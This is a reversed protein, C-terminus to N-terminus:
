RAFYRYFIAEDTTSEIAVQSIGYDVWWETAFWLLVEAVTGSPFPIISTFGTESSLVLSHIVLTIRRFMLRLYYAEEPEVQLWVGDRLLTFIAKLTGEQHPTYADLIAQRLFAKEQEGTVKDPPLPITPKWETVPLAALAQEVTDHLELWRLASTYIASKPHPGKTTQFTPKALFEEPTMVPIASAKFDNTNRTLIIDAACATAAAVQLADEFDAMGSSVAALADPKTTASVETWALLDTIFQFATPASKSHARVLYFANSLTHWAIWGEHTDGSCLLIARESADSGARQFYGDLLVNTDFFVRM